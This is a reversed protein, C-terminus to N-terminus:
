ENKFNRQENESWIIKVFDPKSWWDTISDGRLIRARSDSVDRDKCVDKSNSTFMSNQSLVYSLATLQHHGPDLEGGTITNAM